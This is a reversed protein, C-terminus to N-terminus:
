DDVFLLYVCVVLLVCCGASYIDCLFLFSCNVSVDQPNCVRLVFKDGFQEVTIMPSVDIIELWNAPLAENYLDKYDAEVQWSWVGNYHKGILSPVREIISSDM